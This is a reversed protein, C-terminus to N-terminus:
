VELAMECAIRFGLPTTCFHFTEMGERKLGKLGLKEMECVGFM